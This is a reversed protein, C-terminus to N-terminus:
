QVACPTPIVEIFQSLTYGVNMFYDTTNHPTSCNPANTDCGEIRTEDDQMVAGNLLTASASTQLFKAVSAVDM